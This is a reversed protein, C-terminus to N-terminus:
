HQKQSHNPASFIAPIQPLLMTHPNTVFSDLFNCLYSFLLSLIVLIKGFLGFFIYTIIVTLRTSNPISASHRIESPRKAIRRILLCSFSYLFILNFSRILSHFELVLRISIELSGVEM